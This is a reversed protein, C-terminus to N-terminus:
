DNMWKWIFNPLLWPWAFTTLLAFIFGGVYGTINLEFYRGLYAGALTWAVFWFIAFLAVRDFHVM